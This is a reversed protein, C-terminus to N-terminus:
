LEGCPSSSASPSSCGLSSINWCPREPWRRSSPRVCARRPRTTSSTPAPSTRSPTPWSRKWGPRTGPSSGRARAPHPRAPTQGQGALLRPLTLAGLGVQGLALLANRRHLM